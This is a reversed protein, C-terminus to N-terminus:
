RKPDIASDGELGILPGKNKHQRDSRKSLTWFAWFAFLASIGSALSFADRVPLAGLRFMTDAMMTLGTCTVMIGGLVLRFSAKMRAAAATTLGVSALVPLSAFFGFPGALLTSLVMWGRDSSLPQVSLADIALILGAATLSFSVHWVLTTGVFLRLWEKFSLLRSDAAAALPLPFVGDKFVARDLAENGGEFGDLRVERIPDERTHVSEAM